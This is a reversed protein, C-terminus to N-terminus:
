KNVWENTWCIHRWYRCHYAFWCWEQGPLAEIETPPSQCYAPISWTMPERMRWSGSSKALPLVPLLALAPSSLSNLIHIGELERGVPNGCATQTGWPLGWSRGPPGRWGAEKEPAQHSGGGSTGELGPITDAGLQITERFEAGVKIFLGKNFDESEGSQSGGGGTGSWFGSQHVLHIEALFFPSSPFCALHHSPFCSTPPPSNLYPPWLLSWQSHPYKFQSSLSLSSTTM